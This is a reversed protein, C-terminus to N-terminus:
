LPIYMTIHTRFEVSSKDIEEVLFILVLVLRLRKINFRQVKCPNLNVEFSLCSRDIQANHCSQTLLKRETKLGFFTKQFKM